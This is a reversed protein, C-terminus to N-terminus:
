LKISKEPKVIRVPQGAEVFIVLRGYGFQRIFELLKAERRTQEEKTKDKAVM